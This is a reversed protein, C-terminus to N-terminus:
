RQARDPKCESREDISRQARDPKCESREDISRQARDPKCESREDISRQARDPKCESREDSSPKIRPSANRPTEVASTASSLFALSSSCDPRVLSVTWPSRFPAM